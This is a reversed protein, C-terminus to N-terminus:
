RPVSRRLALEDLSAGERRAEAKADALRMNEAVQEVKKLDEYARGLADRAGAEEAEIEALEALVKAERQKWGERYGVLYWGAEADARARETEAAAEAALVILKAECGRKRDLIESLRKRLGEIEHDALRILSATWKAPM